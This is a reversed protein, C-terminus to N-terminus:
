AYAENKNQVPTLDEDDMREGLLQDEYFKALTAVAQAETTNGLYVKMDRLLAHYLYLEGSRTHTVLKPTGGLAIDSEETQYFLSITEAATPIASM